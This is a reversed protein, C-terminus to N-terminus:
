QDVKEDVQLFRNYAAYVTAVRKCSIISMKQAEM